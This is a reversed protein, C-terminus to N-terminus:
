QRLRQRRVEIRVPRGASAVVVRRQVDQGGCARYPVTAGNVKAGQLFGWPTIWIELQQAWAPNAPTIRRNYPEPIPTGGVFLSSATVTGTARSAPQTLDIARAYDAIPNSRWPGTANYTQGFPVITAHGSYRIAHLNEAGLARVAERVATDADQASVAIPILWAVWIALLNTVKRAVGVALM